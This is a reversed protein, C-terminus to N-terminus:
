TASDCDRKSVGFWNFARMPPTAIAGDWLLPPPSQNAPWGNQVFLSVYHTGQHCFRSRSFVNICARLTKWAMKAHDTCHVATCISPPCFLFLYHNRKLRGTHLIIGSCLIIWLHSSLLYVCMWVTECCGSCLVATEAGALVSFKLIVSSLLSTFSSIISHHYNPMTAASLFVCAHTLTLSIALCLDDFFSYCM